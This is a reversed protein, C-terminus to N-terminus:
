RLQTDFYFGSIKVTVTVLTAAGLNIQSISTIYIANASIVMMTKVIIQSTLVM